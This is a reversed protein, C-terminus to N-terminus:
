RCSTDCWQNPSSCFFCLSFAEIHIEFHVLNRSYLCLLIHFSICRLLNFNYNVVPILFEKSLFHKVPIYNNEPNIKLTWTMKIIHLDVHRQTCAICANVFALLLCWVGKSNSNFTNTIHQLHQSVFQSRLLFLLHKLWRITMWLGELLIIIYM